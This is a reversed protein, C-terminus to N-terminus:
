SRESYDPKGLAWSGGHILWRELEEFGQQMRGAGGAVLPGNLVDDAIEDLREGGGDVGVPVAVHDGGDVRVATRPDHQGPVAVLDAQHDLVDIVLTEDAHRGDAAPVHLHEDPLRQMDPRGLPGDDADDGALGNVEQRLLLPFRHGLDFVQPNVDSRGARVFRPFEHRDAIRDRELQAEVREAVVDDGARAHVVADAHPHHHLRELPDRAALGCAATKPTEVTWSSIPRRPAWVLANVTAGCIAM